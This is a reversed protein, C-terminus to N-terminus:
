KVELYFDFAMQCPLVEPIQEPNSGTFLCQRKGRATIKVHTHRVIAFGMDALRRIEVETFWQRLKRLSTFACRENCHEDRGIGTDNWPVPWRDRTEEKSHHRLLARSKPCEARYPGEGHENEIRYVTAM